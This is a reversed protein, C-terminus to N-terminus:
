GSGRGILEDRAILIHCWWFAALEVVSGRSM